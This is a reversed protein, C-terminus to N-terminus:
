EVRLRGGGLIAGSFDDKVLYYFLGQEASFSISEQIAYPTSGAVTTAVSQSLLYIGNKFDDAQNTYIELLLSFDDEPVLKTDLLATLLFTTQGNSLTLIHDTAPTQIDLKFDGRLTSGLVTELESNADYNAAIPASQAAKPPPAASPANKTPVEVEKANDTPPTPEVPSPSPTPLTTNENQPNVLENDTTPMLIWWSGAVILIPLLWRWWPPSQRKAENNTVYPLGNDDFEGRLEQLQTRLNDKPSDVLLQQMDRHTILAANLVEDQAVAQEFVQREHGTMRGALYDEIQEYQEQELM